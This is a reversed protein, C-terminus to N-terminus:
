GTMQATVDNEPLDLPLVSNLLPALRFLRPDAELLRRVADRREHAGTVRDLDLLTSFVGRWAYYSTAREISDAAGMVVRIKMSKATHELEEVLRSKGIGPEGEIVITGGADGHALADVQAALTALEARRGVIAQSARRR